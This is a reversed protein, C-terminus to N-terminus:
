PRLASGIRRPFITTMGIDQVGYLWMILRELGMGWGGTSLGSAEHEKFEFYWDYEELPISAAKMSTSQRSDAFAKRLAPASNERLGASLVEGVDPIILDANEVVDHRQTNRKFTFAKILTPFRTIFTPADTWRTIRQEDQSSLDDGWEISNGTKQLHEVAEDYPMKVVQGPEQRVGADALGRWMDILFGWVADLLISLNDVVFEAEVHTYESLHTLSPKKEQRFCRSISCVSGIRPVCVELFPQSTQALFAREGYYDLPILTAIDECAGACNTIRPPVVESFGQNSFLRRIERLLRETTVASEVFNM